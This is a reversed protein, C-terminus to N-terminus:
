DEVTLNQRTFQTEYAFNIAKVRWQYENPLLTKTFNSVTILTDEVIQQTTEFDPTAIQLHYTDAFEIPQWSFTITDTQIISNNSPALIAVTEESIDEVAIIDECSYLCFLWLYLLIKKLM